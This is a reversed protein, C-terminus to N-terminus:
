RILRIKQNLSNYKVLLATSNFMIKNNKLSWNDKNDKLFTLIETEAAILKDLKTKANKMQTDVKKLDADSVENLMLKEYLKKYRSSVKESDIRKLIDERNTFKELEKFNNEFEETKKELYALSETFMPGDKEFNSYTLISELKKDQLSDLTTKINVHYEHLYNKITKEVKGYSSTTKVKTDVDNKTIDTSVISNIEKQLKATQLVNFVFYGGIALVLVAVISVIVIVNKKM